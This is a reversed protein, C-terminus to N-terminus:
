AHSVVTGGAAFRRYVELWRPRIREWAYDASAELGAAVLRQRLAPDRLVQLGAEAMAEAAGVPVLLANAGHTVLYPIGGADTSVVPVGSALAELISIPMNDVRSPNLMLDAQAYLAPIDRNEIRGSFHVADGMGLDGALHRLAAEEPGSGAVTLRAAPFEQRVRAFARLATPIDYIPELNRTVILHPADPRREDRSPSFRSLDVINPVIEASHGFERFVEALYGSPVVLATAWAPSRVVWRPAAAFFARAEGGRYNVICPVGRLRALVITPLAFVYWAIGSNAFLHVVQSRGLGWWLRFLYPVFRFAARLGKLSGVWAPAYPANTQVFHVELGEAVLFERLQRCQNAMGGSPPPLPGVLLVAPAEGMTDAGQGRRSRLLLFVAGGSALVLLPLEILLRLRLRQMREIALANGPTALIQIRPHVGTLIAAAQEASRSLSGALHVLPQGEYAGLNTGMWLYWGELGRRYYDRLATERIFGLRGPGNSVIQGVAGAGALAARWEAVSLPTGDPAIVHFNNFVDIFVWRGAQRDFVELVAHGHGGFGDFSFGWERVVIGAAHALAIFTQTFDACYGRGEDRIKRYATWTDAQIAGGDRANETLHGALRLAREWDSGQPAVQKVVEVLRPDPAVTDTKFEAPFQPPLWDFREGAVPLVLLANRLRVAESSPRASRGLDALIAIVVALCALLAVLRTNRSLGRAM